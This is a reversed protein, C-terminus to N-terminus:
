TSAAAPLSSGIVAAADEVGRGELREAQRALDTFDGMLHQVDRQLVRLPRPRKFAQEARDVWRQEVEAGIGDDVAGKAM